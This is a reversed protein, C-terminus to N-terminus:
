ELVPSICIADEVSGSTGTPARFLSSRNRSAHTGRRKGANKVGNFLSALLKVEVELLASGVLLSAAKISITRYSEILSVAM